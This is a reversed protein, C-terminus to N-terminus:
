FTVAVNSMNKTSMQKAKTKHLYLKRIDPCKAEEVEIGRQFPNLSVALSEEQKRERMKKQERM